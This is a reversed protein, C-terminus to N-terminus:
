RRASAPPTWLVVLELRPVEGGGGRPAAEGSGPRASIALDAPAAALIRALVAEPDGEVAAFVLARGAEFELPHVESAGVASSELLDVFAEFGSWHRLGLVEIELGQGADPAAEAVILGREALRGRVRDVDVTVDVVVVYERTAESEGPFLVPRSGQDEVIRFSRAFPTMDRGLVSQLQNEELGPEDASTGGDGAPSGGHSPLPPGYEAVLDLAVRSVAEYLARNIAGQRPGGARSASADLPQVGVVQLSRNEATAEDALLVAGVALALLLLSSLLRWALEARVSPAPDRRGPGGEARGGPRRGDFGGRADYGASMGLV